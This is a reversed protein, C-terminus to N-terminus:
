QSRSHARAYAVAAELADRAIDPNDALIDDITDGHEPGARFLGDNAHGSSEGPRHRGLRDIGVDVRQPERITLREDGFDFATEGGVRAGEAPV